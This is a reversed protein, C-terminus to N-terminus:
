IFCTGDSISSFFVLIGKFRFTIASSATHLPLPYRTRVLLSCTWRAIKPHWPLSLSVLGMTLAGLEHPSRTSQRPVRHLTCTWRAIKPHWPLSSSVLGMTLAGLEHPSPTSQRPVRHRTCPCDTGLGWTWPALFLEKDFGGLFEERTVKKHSELLYIKKIKEVKRNVRKKTINWVNRINTTDNILGIFECLKQRGM